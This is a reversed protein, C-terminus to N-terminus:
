PEKLEEELADLLTDLTLRGTNVTHAADPLHRDLAPWAELREVYPGPVYGWAAIAALRNLVCDPRDGIEGAWAIGVRSARQAQDMTLGCAALTADSIM